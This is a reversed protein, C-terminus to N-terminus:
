GCGDADYDRGWVRLEPFSVIQMASEETVVPHSWKTDCLPYGSAGGVVVVLVFCALTAASM